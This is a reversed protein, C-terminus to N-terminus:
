VFGLTAAQPFLEATADEFLGSRNNILLQHRPPAGYNQPVCKSGIFFDPFNDANIDMIAISSSNGDNAPLAEANLSFNGKGDNVYLRNQMERIGSQLHNGGSGVLLDMDGDAEVDAFAVVVDEFQAM